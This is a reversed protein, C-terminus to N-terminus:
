RMRSLIIQCNALLIWSASSEVTKEYDKSLRRFFNFWGFTREVVWRIKIPVFGKESPPRSSIDVEAAILEKVFQEFSGRYHGDAFVMEVRELQTKIKGFLKIGPKGDYVNAASVIVGQVLGMTDTVIHRKRGKIKKGGDFGTDLSIFSSIKVSQSDVCVASATEERDDSYREIENLLINMKEFRGDNKWKRFHYYVASWPPYKSDMNRWQSGTRLLWFIANLVNRLNLECRRQEGFLDEIVEWQFDTLEEYQIIM